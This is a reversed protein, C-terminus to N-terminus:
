AIIPIAKVQTEKVLELMLTDDNDFYIQALAKLYKIRQANNLSLMFEMDEYSTKAINVFKQEAYSNYPNNQTKPYVVAILNFKELERFLKTYVRDFRIYTKTKHKYMIPEIVERYYQEYEAKTPYVNYNIVKDRTALIVLVANVLSSRNHHKDAISGNNLRKGDVYYSILSKDVNSNYSLHKHEKYDDAERKSKFYKSLTTHSIKIGYKRCLIKSILRFGIKRNLLTRIETEYEYINVNSM